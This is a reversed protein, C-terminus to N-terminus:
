RLVMRPAPTLFGIDSLHRVYRDILTQDIPPCSIGAAALRPTTEDCTLAPRYSRQNLEIYTLRDPAWRQRFFPLLPYLAGDRRAALRELWESHPIFDIEYGLAALM